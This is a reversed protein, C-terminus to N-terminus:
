AGHPVFDLNLKGAILYCMTILNKNTRYGRAKAKAAQILSNIGELMGNSKRNKFWNLIGLWHEKITKAAKKMPELRSHTAWFYWKQLYVAGTQLDPQQFLGQFALKIGYARETKSNLGRLSQMAQEQKQTLNQPNKLWIYRTGKLLPNEKSEQRRVEDVAENIIKVIHFKDFTLAARPFSEKVGSIFSPSMDCCINKINAPKGQHEILDQRFEAVTEKGKGETVYLIKAPDLDAFTSVYNHGRKSATEDIGVNAVESYDAESRAKQVYADLMRWLRTDHEDVLKAIARVPMQRALTLIYAEFLLTFGSRPRAWPVQVTLVGCDPCEVRPERAHLYAKHEFFNLHRWIREESDHVGVKSGCHPCTFKSGAKFDLYIDLQKESSSFVVEKVQWPAQLGLALTFLQNQDNFM